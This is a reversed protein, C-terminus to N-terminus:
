HIICSFNVIYRVTVLRYNAIDMRDTYFKDINLGISIEHRLNRM